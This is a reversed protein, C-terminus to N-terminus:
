KWIKVDINSKVKNDLQKRVTFYVAPIAVPLVVAVRTGISLTRLSSIRSKMKGDSYIFTILWRFYSEHICIDHSEKIELAMM